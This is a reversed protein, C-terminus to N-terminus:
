PLADLKDVFRQVDAMGEAVEEANYYDEYFSVHLLNASKFLLKLEQDGTEEAIRAVAKRLTNHTQHPWGRAACVAKTMQAAAGWAKEAAQRTDGAALEQEAQVLLHQSAEHYTQTTM